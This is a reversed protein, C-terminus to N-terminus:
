DRPSPSTYLLCVPLLVLGGVGVVAAATYGVVRRPGETRGFRIPEELVLGSVTALAATVVLRLGFLAGPGSLIMPYGVKITNQATAPLPSAVAMAAALSLLASRKM